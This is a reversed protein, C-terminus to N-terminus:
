ARRVRAASAQRDPGPMSGPRVVREAVSGHSTPSRADDMRAGDRHDIAHDKLASRDNRRRSRRSSPSAKPMPTARDEETV